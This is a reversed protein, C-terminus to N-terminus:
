PIDIKWEFGEGDTGTLGRSLYLEIFIGGALDTGPGLYPDVQFTALRTADNKVVQFGPNNGANSGATQDSFIFTNLDPPAGLRHEVCGEVLRSSPGAAGRVGQIIIRYSFMAWKDIPTTTGEEVCQVSLFTQWGAGGTYDIKLHRRFVFNRDQAAGATGVSVLKTEGQITQRKTGPDWKLEPSGGFSGGTNVQIEDNGGGPPTSSGGGIVPAIPM